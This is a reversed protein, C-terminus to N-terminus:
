CHDSSGLLNKLHEFWQSKREEPSKGKLKGTPACKRNTINNVIKWAQASNNTKSALEVEELQATLYERELRNYEENLRQRAVKLHKRTVSSM